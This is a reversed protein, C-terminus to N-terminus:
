KGVTDQLSSAFSTSIFKGACVCRIRWMRTGCSTAGGTGLSGLRGSGAFGMGREDDGGPGIELGPARKAAASTCLM